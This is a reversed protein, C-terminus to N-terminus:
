AIEAHIQDVSATPASSIWNAGDSTLLNGAAGPAVSVSPAQSVWQSGTSTLVNGVAGPLDLVSDSIVTTVWPCDVTGVKDTINGQVISAVNAAVYIYALPHQHVTLTNILTPNVPTVGPTGKIIKIDNARVDNDANVELVVADIRNLIPESAEVVLLLATDNKTWTHNFWARGIGVSVVMGSTATVRLYTAISPFIGDTIVGDFISSLEVADYARDNDLSNYFGFTLTM